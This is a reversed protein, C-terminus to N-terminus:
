KGEGDKAHKKEWLVEAESKRIYYPVVSMVDDFEGRELRKIGATLLSQARPIAMAPPAVKFYESHEEIEDKDYYAGDGIFLVDEEKSALYELAEDFDKVEPSQIEQLQEGTFRYLAEYVNNKQADIWVAILRDAYMANYAMAKMTMVGVIPIQLGYAMSKATALGIRLGTFSGPGISVIIGKLDTKKVNCMELLSNIHPVLQESHTLSAQVTLEGKLVTKTGLAISSVLSSTEISLYM